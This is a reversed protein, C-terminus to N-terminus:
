DNLIAKLKRRIIRQKCFFYKLELYTDFDQLINRVNINLLFMKAKHEKTMIVFVTIFFSVIPLRIYLFYSNFIAFLAIPIFNKTRDKM